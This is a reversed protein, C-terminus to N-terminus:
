ADPAPRLRYHSVGWEAGANDGFLGAIPRSTMEEAFAGDAIAADGIRRRSRAVLWGIGARAISDPLPAREAAGIASAVVNM